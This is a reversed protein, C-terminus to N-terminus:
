FQYDQTVTGIQQNITDMMSKALMLTGVFAMITLVLSVWGVIKARGDETKIYSFTLGIGFPPLLTSLVFLWVIPLFDLSVAKEKLKKGCHPCFFDDRSVPASCFKCVFVLSQSDM